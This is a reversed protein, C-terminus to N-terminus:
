FTEFEDVDWYKNSNSCSESHSIELGVNQGGSVHAAKSKYEKVSDYCLKHACEILEDATDGYIKPFYFHILMMKYRPDLVVAVVLMPHIENWYKDFKDAMKDAMIRIALNDATRWRNISLKLKCILPFFLNATPYKTGSFMETLMYFSKLHEVM